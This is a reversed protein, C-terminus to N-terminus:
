KNNYEDILNKEANYIWTLLTNIDSKALMKIKKKSFEKVDCMGNLALIVFYLDTTGYIDYALLKPRYQYRLFELETMTCIKVVSSNAIDLIYDNLVNLMPFNIDEGLKTILSLNNYTITVERGASIFDEVSYTTEPIKSM